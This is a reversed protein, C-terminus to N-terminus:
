ESVTPEDEGGQVGLNESSPPLDGEKSTDSVNSVSGGTLTTLKTKDTLTTLSPISYTIRKGVVTAELRKEERLRKVIQQVNSRGVDAQAAIQGADVNGDLDEIAKIIKSEAEARRLDVADGELHWAWTQEKDFSLRLEQEPIDRGEVIFEFTGDNNKYIGINTDTVGPIASSGRIDFGADRELTGKPKGHHAVLLITANNEMAIKRINNFLDANAGAENEDTKGSIAMRLTDIIVLVPKYEAVIEALETIGAPTNLPTIRHFYHIPLGHPAHQMKLRSQLRVKGDELAFHLVTGQMTKFGLFPSGGAVCNGGQTCMFSKFMKKKGAIVGLGPLPLLNEIVFKMPPLDLNLLADQTTVFDRWNLKQPRTDPQPEYRCVSAAIAKIEDEPLPTECPITLLAAEIAEQNFGSRRMQGAKSTLVANRKGEPVPADGPIKTGKTVPKSGNCAAKIRQPLQDFPILTEGPIPLENIIYGPAVIVAYGGVARIDIKPLIAAVTKLPHGTTDTYFHGGGRPTSVHAPKIEKALEEKARTTDTDIIAINKGTILAWGWPKLEENWKRLQAEDPPKEQYQKWAVLPKKDPGVPILSHGLTHLKFVTYFQSTTM